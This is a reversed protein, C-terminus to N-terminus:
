NVTGIFTIRNFSPHFKNEGSESVIKLANVLGFILEPNADIAASMMVLWKEDIPSAYTGTEGQVKDSLVILAQSDEMLVESVLNHAASVLNKM